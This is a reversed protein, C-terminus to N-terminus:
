HIKQAYLRDGWKQTTVKYWESTADEVTAVETDKKLARIPTGNKEPAKRLNVATNYKVYYVTRM